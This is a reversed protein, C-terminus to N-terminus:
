KMHNIYPICSHIQSSEEMFAAKDNYAMVFGTPKAFNDDPSSPLCFQSSLLAREIIIKLFLIYFNILGNVVGDCINFGM